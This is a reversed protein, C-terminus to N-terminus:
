FLTRCSEPNRDALVSMMSKYHAAEIRGPHGRLVSADLHAVFYNGDVRYVDVRHLVVVDHIQKM